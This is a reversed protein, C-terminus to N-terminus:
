KSSHKSLDPPEKSIGAYNLFSEAPSAPPFRELLPAIEQPGFHEADLANGQKLLFGFQPIFSNHRISHDITLGAVVFINRNHYNFSDTLYSVLVHFQRWTNINALRRHPYACTVIDPLFDFIGAEILDQPQQSDDPLRRSFRFYNPQLLEDLPRSGQRASALSHEHSQLFQPHIPFIKGQSSDRLAEGNVLRRLRLHIAPLPSPKQVFLYKYPIELRINNNERLLRIHSSARRYLELYPSLIRHLLGCCTSDKGNIRKVFGLGDREDAGLHSGGLIVLDQGHHSAPILRQPDVLAGVRGLDFVPCDFMYGLLAKKIGQSEDSCQWVAPQTGSFMNAKALSFMRGYLDFLGMPPRQLSNEPPPQFLPM